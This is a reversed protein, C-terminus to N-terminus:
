DMTWYGRTNYEILADDWKLQLNALVRLWTRRSEINGSESVRDLITRVQDLNRAIEDLNRYVPIHYKQAKHRQDILSHFKDINFCDNAASQTSTAM